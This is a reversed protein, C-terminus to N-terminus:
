RYSKGTHKHLIFMEKMRDILRSDYFKKLLEINLNTTAHTITEGRQFSDYRMMLLDYILNRDTGFDKFTQSETGIDDILLEKCLVLENLYEEGRIKVQSEIYKASIIRMGYGSYYSQIRQYIFFNLSKGVGKSGMIFLGKNPMTKLSPHYKERDSCFFYVLAASLKDPKFGKKIKYGIDGWVKKLLNIHFLKIDTKM